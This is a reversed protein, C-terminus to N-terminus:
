SSQSEQYTTLNSTTIQSLPEPLDSLPFWGIATCKAPERITPTGSRHRALYTASIWHQHEAELIHDFLGLLKGPEIEMGYEERFERRIADTLPEGFDVQGGPFEWAGVENRARPGRQALFVRGDDDFVMAGVGIGIYDRGPTTM